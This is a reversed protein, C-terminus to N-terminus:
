VANTLLRKPMVAMILLVFHKHTRNYINGINKVQRMLSLVRNVITGINLCYFVGSILSLFHLHIMYFKISFKM